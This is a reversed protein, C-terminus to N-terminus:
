IELIKINSNSMNNLYRVALKLAAISDKFNGLGTNCERCLLGRIKGTKHDHDICLECELFIKRCINCRRSQEKYMKHKDEFTINYKFRLYNEKQYKKRYEKNNKDWKAQSLRREKRHSERYKKDIQKKREPNNKKWQVANCARSCYETDKRKGIINRKCCICKNM